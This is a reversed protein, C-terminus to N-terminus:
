ARYNDIFIQENSGFEMIFLNKADLILEGGNREVKVKIDYIQGYKPNKGIKERGLWIDKRMHYADENEDKETGLTNMCVLDKGLGYLRRIEKTLEKFNAQRDVKARTVLTGEVGVKFIKGSRVDNQSEKCIELKLYTVANRENRTIVEPRINYIKEGGPFLRGSIKMFNQWSYCKEKEVISKM